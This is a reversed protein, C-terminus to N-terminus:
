SRTMMSAMLAFCSIGVIFVITQLLYTHNHDMPIIYWSPRTYDVPHFEMGIGMYSAVKKVARMAVTVVTTSANATLLNLLKSYMSIPSHIRSNHLVRSHSIPHGLMFLRYIGLKTVVFVTKVANVFSGNILKEIASLPPVVDSTMIWMQDSSVSPDALNFSDSLVFQVQRFGVPKVWGVLQKGEKLWRGLEDVNVVHM